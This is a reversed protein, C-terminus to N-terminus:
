TTSADGSPDTVAQLHHGSHMGASGSSQGQPQVTAALIIAREIENRCSHIFNKVQAVEPTQVQGTIAWTKAPDVGEIPSCFRDPKELDMLDDVAWKAHLPANSPLLAIDCAYELYLIAIVYKRSMHTLSKEYYTIGIHM